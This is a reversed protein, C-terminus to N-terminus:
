EMERFTGAMGGMLSWQRQIYSKLNETSQRYAECAISSNGEKRNNRCFVTGALAFADVSNYWLFKRNEGSPVFRSNKPFPFCFLAMACGKEGTIM